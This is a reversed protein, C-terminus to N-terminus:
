PRVDHVGGANPKTPTWGIKREPPGPLTVFCKCFFDGARAFERSEGDSIVDRANSFPLEFVIEVAGQQCTYRVTDGTTIFIPSAPMIVEDNVVTVIIERDM